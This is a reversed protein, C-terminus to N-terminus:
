FVHLSNGAKTTAWGCAKQVAIAYNIDGCIQTMWSFAENSIIKQQTGVLSHTTQKM